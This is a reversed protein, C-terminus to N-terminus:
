VELRVYRGVAADVRGQWRRMVGRLPDESWLKEVGAAAYRVLGEQVQDTAYSAVAGVAALELIAQWADDPITTAYGWRGTIRLSRYVAGGLPLSWRRLFRVGWWSVAFPEVEVDGPNGLLWFDTDRVLTEASGGEPQYVVSTVTALDRDLVLVNSPTVPPDYRRNVAGAPALLIRRIRREFEDAAGNVAATEDFDAAMTVGAGSLFTTLQAATPYASQGM